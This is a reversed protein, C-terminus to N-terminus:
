GTFIKSIAPRELLDGSCRVYMFLVYVRTEIWAKLPIFVSTLVIFITQLRNHLSIETPLVTSAWLEEALYSAGNPLPASCSGSAMKLIHGFNKPFRQRKIIKFSDPIFGMLFRFWTIYSFQLIQHPSCFTGGFSFMLAVCSSVSIGHCCTGRIKTKEYLIM